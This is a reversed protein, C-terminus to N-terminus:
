EDRVKDRQRKDYITYYGLTLKILGMEKLTDLNEEATILLLDILSQPAYCTVIISNGENVAKVQVKKAIGKFAKSLLGRIDFLTHEDTKWELVFVITECTLQHSSSSIIFSQNCCVDAKIKECFEDVATNYNTIHEKAETIDYQDVIEELCCVNIITCKDQVLDMVDDFSEATALQPRLERFCRRLYTKLDQLSPIGKAILPAVTYFLKGFKMRMQDFDHQFTPQLNVKSPFMQDIFLVNYSTSVYATSVM